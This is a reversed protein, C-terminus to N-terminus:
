YILFIMAFNMKILTVELFLQFEQIKFLVDM